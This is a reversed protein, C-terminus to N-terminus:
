CVSLLSVMIVCAILRQSRLMNAHHGQFCVGGSAYLCALPGRPMFVDGCSPIEREVRSPVVWALM